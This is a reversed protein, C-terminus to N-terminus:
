FEYGEIAGSHNLHQIVESEFRLKLEDIIEDESNSYGGRKSIRDYTSILEIGIPTEPEITYVAYFYCSDANTVEFYVNYDMPFVGTTDILLVQHTIRSDIESLLVVLERETGEFEYEEIPGWTSTFYMQFCWALAILIVAGVALVSVFVVIIDAIKM